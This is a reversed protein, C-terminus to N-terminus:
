EGFGDAMLEDLYEQTIPRDSRFGGTRPRPRPHHEDILKDVAQAMTLGEAAAVSRLRDRTRKPVKITTSTM